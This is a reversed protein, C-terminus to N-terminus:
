NGDKVVPTCLTIITSRVGRDREGGALDEMDDM